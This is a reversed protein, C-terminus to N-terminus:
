LTSHQSLFYIYRGRNSSRLHNDWVFYLDGQNSIAIDPSYCNGDEFSRNLNREEEWTLGGNFSRSLFVDKSQYFVVNINGNNDVAISPEYGNGINHHINVPKSWSLGNDSSKCFHISPYYTNDNSIAAFAVNINGRNDVAIAPHSSEELNDHLIVPDTWNAGNNESRSFFIYYNNYYRYGEWVLNINGMSDLAMAVTYSYEIESIDFIANCLSCNEGKDDSRYFYVLETDLDLWAINISGNNDVAVVPSVAYRSDISINKPRTWNAGKDTSYMLYVCYGHNDSDSNIFVIYINGNKDTTIDAERREIETLIIGPQLWNLGNDTSYSFVLNENDHSGESWIVYINGRNDVAIKPDESYHYTNSINQPFIININDQQEEKNFVSCNDFIFILSLIILILFNRKTLAKHKKKM